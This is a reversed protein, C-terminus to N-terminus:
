NKYVLKQVFLTLWLTGTIFCVVTSLVLGLTFYAYCIVYLGVLTPVSTAYAIHGKKEKFGHYIQPILAASFVISAATIVADQWLM